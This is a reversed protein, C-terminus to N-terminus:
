TAPYVILGMGLSDSRLWVDTARIVDHEEDRDCQVAPGSYYNRGNYDEVTFGANEMDDAFRQHRPNTYEAM